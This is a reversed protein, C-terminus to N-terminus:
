SIFFHGLFEADEDMILQDERRFSLGSSRHTYYLGAQYYNEKSDKPLEAFEQYISPYNGYDGDSEELTSGSGDNITINEGERGWIVKKVFSAGNEPPTFDTKLLYDSDPFLDCLIKMMAKSQFILSYAPNIVVALNNKVISTLDRMLDPEEYAIFEWPVIKFWFEFQEYEDLTRELFIGEDPSFIVEELKRHEVTTFGGKKAAEALFEINLEDEEFGMSSLLIKAEKDPNNELLLRFGEALDEFLTNLQGKGPLPNAALQEKQIVATEPLITATDANYEIMKVPKDFLGGALDFRGYLHKHWRRKEWSFKVLEVANSPIGIQQFLNNNVVHAAGIEFMGYLKRAAIKFADVEEPYVGVIKDTLYDWEDEGGFWSLKLEDLKKQSLPEIEFVRNDM